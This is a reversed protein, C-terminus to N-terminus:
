TQPKLDERPQRAPNRPSSSSRYLTKQLFTFDKVWLSCVLCTIVGYQCLEPAPAWTITSKFNVTTEQGRGQIPCCCEAPGSCWAPCSFAAPNKKSKSQSIHIHTQNYSHIAYVHLHRYRGSSSTLDPAATVPRQSGGTVRRPLVRLDEPLISPVRLQQPM